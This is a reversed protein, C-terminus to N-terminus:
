PRTWRPSGGTGWAWPAPVWRAQNRDLRDLHAVLARAGSGVMGQSWALTVQEETRNALRAKYPEDGRLFRYERDGGEASSRIAHEHLLLGVSCADLAPDRGGQYHSEVGDFWFSHLAAVPVGDLELFRLRLWGRDLFTRAVDRHFAERGEYARSGGPRRSWHRDHLDFLADLDRTLQAPDETTRFTVTGLAALKRRGRRLQDRLNASRSGAWAEIGGAGFVVAHGPTRALVTAGAPAPETGADTHPLEDTIALDWGGSRALVSPLAALARARDAVACVPGLQDTPGHGLLRLTRVPRGAALYLPVIAVLRGDPERLAHLRLPRDRGVHRWWTALWARTAFVNDSRAALEDWEPGLAELDAVPEGELPPADPM